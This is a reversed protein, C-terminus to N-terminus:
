ILCIYFTNINKPFQDTQELPFRKNAFDFFFEAFNGYNFGIFIKFNEIIEILVTLLM